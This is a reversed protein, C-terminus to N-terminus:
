DPSFMEQVRETREPVVTEAIGERKLNRFPDYVLTTAITYLYPTAERRDNNKPPSNLFRLFTEQLIDDAATASESIRAVYAWLPRATKEYLEEFITEDM